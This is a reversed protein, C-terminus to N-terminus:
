SEFVWRGRVMGKLEDISLTMDRKRHVVAHCNACLTVLDTEPDVAKEGGSESIPVVHHVHIFGKAHEGYAQEFDFGCGKCDLGHIAIAQMRLDKRREYRTGFYSFKSGENASELTFLDGEVNPGNAEAQLPQLKAHSLIADFDAQSIPRVGDRWYNKLRNAPITELYVGDIKSPVAGEFQAFNEILAYLDGKASGPDAYVKGIRATGFYHPGDSLRVPSFAKDKIRGKYYIVDTGPVLLAQYRKPFHYVAGTKDEWQSTDNEVIVVSM